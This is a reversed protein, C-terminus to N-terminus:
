ELVVKHSHVYEYTWACDQLTIRRYKATAQPHTTVMMPVTPFRIVMRAKATSERRLVRKLTSMTLKAIASRRYQVM